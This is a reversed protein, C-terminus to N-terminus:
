KLVGEERTELVLFGGLIATTVTPVVMAIHGGILVFYPELDFAWRVWVERTIWPIALRLALCLGFILLALGILFRDRLIRLLDVELLTMVPSSLARSM